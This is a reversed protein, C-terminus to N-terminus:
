ELLSRNGGSDRGKSSTDDRKVPSRSQRQQSNRYRQTVFNKESPQLYGRDDPLTQPRPPLSSKNWQKAREERLPDAQRDAQRIERNGLSIDRGKELTPLSATSRLPVDPNRPGTPPGNSKASVPPEVGDEARPRKIGGQEGFRPDERDRKSAQLQNRAALLKEKLLIERSKREDPMTTASSPESIEGPEKEEEKTDQPLPAPHQSNLFSEALTELRSHDVGPAERIARSAQVQARFQRISELSNLTPAGPTIPSPTTDSSITQLLVPPQSRVTPTYARYEGNRENETSSSYRLPPPPPRAINAAPIQALRSPHVQVASVPSSILSVPPPSTTPPGKPPPQRPPSPQRYSERLPPVPLPASNQPVRDVPQIYKGGVRKTEQRPSERAYGNNQPPQPLNQRNRHFTPDYNSGNYGGLDSRGVSPRNYM